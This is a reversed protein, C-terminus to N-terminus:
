KEASDVGERRDDRVVELRCDVKVDALTTEVGDPWLVTVRLPGAYPGLGFHAYAANASQFPGGGRIWRRWKRGGTEVDVRCGIGRRNKGGRRDRPDIIVWHSGSRSALGRLVRVPGNLEGIVADLDGDGDLDGFAATRDRYGKALWEGATSAGQRHFRWEERAFLLPTQLYPSDMTERTAQPYVHGNFAILDEDGDLDFDGLECAWGVFAMSM